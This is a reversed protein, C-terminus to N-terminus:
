WPMDPMMGLPLPVLLFDSFIVDIALTALAATVIAIPWRVRFLAFMVLLFAFMVPLFGIWKSVAIYVAMALVAALVAPVAYPRRSWESRSFAPASAGWGRVALVLGCGAFGLAVVTPFLAAGYQQGPIDPFTQAYAALVIAFVVLAGGLVSDSVRM